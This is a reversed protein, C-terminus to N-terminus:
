AAGGFAEPDPFSAMCVDRYAAFARAAPVPALRVPNHSSYTSNPDEEQGQPQAALALLLAIPHAITSLTM